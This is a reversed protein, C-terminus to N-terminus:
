KAPSIRLMDAVSKQTGLSVLEASVKRLQAMNNAEIERISEKYDLGKGPSISDSLIQQGLDIDYVVIRGPMFLNGNFGSVVRGHYGLTCWFILYKIKEARLTEREDESLELERWGEEKDFLAYVRNKFPQQETNLDRFNVADLGLKKLEAVFAHSLDQESDWMGDYTAKQERTENWLVKYVMENYTITKTIDFFRAAVRNRTMKHAAEVPLRATACGIPLLIFIWFLRM